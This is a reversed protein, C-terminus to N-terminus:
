ATLILTSAFRGGIEQSRRGGISAPPLIFCLLPKISGGLRVHWAQDFTRRATIDRARKVVGRSIIASGGVASCEKDCGLPRAVVVLFLLPLQIQLFGEEFATALMGLTVPCYQAAKKM